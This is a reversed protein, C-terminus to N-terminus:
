EQGIATRFEHRCEQVTERYRKLPFRELHLGIHGLAALLCYGLQARDYKLITAHRDIERALARASLGGSIAFRVLDYAPFGRLSAGLWDIIVFPYRGGRPAHLLNNMWLDNHALVHKPQWRGASLQERAAKSWDAMGPEEAVRVLAADWHAIEDATADSATKQAVERLWQLVWPRMPFRVLIRLLKNAVIPRRYPLLAFTLGDVEGCLTPQLIAESLPEGLVESAQRARDVGRGVLGPEVPSSCLVFGLIRGSPDRLRLKTSSDAVTSIPGVRELRGIMGRRALAAQLRQTISIPDAAVIM